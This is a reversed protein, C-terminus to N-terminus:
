RHHPSELGTSDTRLTPMKKDYKQEMEIMMEIFHKAKELDNLGGKNRWRCMYKIVAGELFPIQNAHCFEVVQIKMKKYHEGGVQKRLAQPKIEM